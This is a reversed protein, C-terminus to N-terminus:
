FKKERLISVFISLTIVLAIIYGLFSMVPMGYVRQVEYPLMMTSAIFLTGALFGLTLRNSSRDLEVTLSSIDKDIRRLDRSTGHLDSMLNDARRPLSEAFDYVSEVKKKVREAINEPRLRRRALRKVFPKSVEIFNLKPDLEEAVGELTVTAKTLLVFNPLVKMKHKRFLEILDNLADSMRIKSIETEYYMALRDYIDRKLDQVDSGERKVGMKVSEEVMGEVDGNVMSIFFETMHEKMLYDLRGIIGFDLLAVKGDRKVIFNGPHPDAHFLGHIFLQEFEAELITNIIRRREKKGFKEVDTLRKGPVYEMTLVKGKTHSWIVKPIVIKESDRFNNHFTDINHAERLYNLENETYREFERVIEVPDIVDSPFRKKIIGALRYLLKIDIKVTREIDPRQIKVAVRTGDKLTARHVQGMSASADPEKNFERFLRKMPKGLHKEVLKVADDGPFPKVEDQLKSLEECYEAPILDPRLSLLQGLKIFSGDLEEFIKLVLKPTLEHERKRDTRIRERFPLKKRLRLRTLVSGMDNDYLVRAIHQLREIEERSPIFVM